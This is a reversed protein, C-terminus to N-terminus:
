AGPTQDFRAGPGTRARGPRLRADPRFRRHTRPRAGPTVPDADLDFASQPPGRAPSLRPPAAPLELHRLIAGTPEPDTLFALIRMDSGCEPCRLPFVEYIRAHLQAGRSRAAAGTLTPASEERVHAQTEQGFVDTIEVGVERGLAVVHPRLRANPALV